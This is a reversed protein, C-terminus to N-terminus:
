LLKKFDERNTIETYRGINTEFTIVHFREVLTKRAKCHIIFADRDIDIDMTKSEIGDIIVRIRQIEEYRDELDITLMDHSYGINARISNSKYNGNEQAKYLVRLINKGLIKEIDSEVYGRSILEDTIKYMQSADKLDVLMQAGDFDSGLGVYDIGILNVIYDIHDAFDSVDVREKDSLFGPYLVVGVVGGNKKIAILQDDKLNRQHNRLNYVGSHSAIVPSNTINIIDWFTEESLHSVDILIGLKNMEKIVSEGLKTLGGYSPTKEDDGYVRNCGEGISNSYNWTPAIVRIGLDHFQKLLEIHNSENIAYAGEITAVAAIKNDKVARFIEDVSTTIRFSDPNEKATFYLANILSLNRSLSKCTDGYYGSTFSAFFAVNMRGEKLKPIDIHLDTVEGINIIPQWTEDDIIRSMTDNHGDM